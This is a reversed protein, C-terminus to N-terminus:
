ANFLQSVIFYSHVTQNKYRLLVTIRPSCGPWLYLYIHSLNGHIKIRIYRLQNIRTQDHPKRATHLLWTPTTQWAHRMRSCYRKDWRCACLVPSVTAGVPAINDGFCSSRGTRARQLASPISWRASWIDRVAMIFFAFNGACIFVLVGPVDCTQVSQHTYLHTCINVNRNIATVYIKSWYSTKWSPWNIIRDLYSALHYSKPKWKISYIKM